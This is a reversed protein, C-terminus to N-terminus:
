AASQALHESSPCGEAIELVFQRYEDSGKVLPLGRNAITRDAIGEWIDFKEDRRRRVLDLLESERKQNFERFAAVGPAVLM